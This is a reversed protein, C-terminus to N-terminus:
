REGEQVALRAAGARAEENSPSLGLVLEYRRRAGDRDGRRELSTAMALQAAVSRPYYDSVLVMMFHSEREFGDALLARGREVFNEAAERRAVNANNLHAVFRLIAGQTKGTRFLQEVQRAVSSPASNSLAVELAADRGAFYDAALYPADIHVDTQTRFEGALWSRWEITSTRLTLGTHTLVTRQPDGFHTPGSGSAEGVFIAESFQELQNLLMQAASFTQRGILVYLRGYRNYDSALLARVIAPNFQATGGQNYRLDIVIRNARGREAAVLAEHLTDALPQAPFAEIENIQIYLASRGPLLSWWVRDGDRSPSPPRPGPVPRAQYQVAGEALAVLPVSDERGDTYRVRLTVRDRHEILGLAHLVGPLSLRDPVVFRAGSDNDAAVTTRVAAVVSETASGDFSMVQAGILSAASREAGIIFVGDDFIEFRVPLDSFVLRALRPPATPIHGQAVGFEVHQRPVSIRTHGDAIMAVLQALRVEIANDSLEPLERVLRTAAADIEAQEVHRFPAPHRERIAGVAQEIDARWQQDSLARASAGQAYASAGLCTLALLVVGLCLKGLSGFKLAAMAGGM